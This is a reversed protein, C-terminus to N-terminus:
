YKEVCAGIAGEALKDLQEADAKSGPQFDGIFKTLARVHFESASRYWVEKSRRWEDIMLYLSMRFCNAAFNAYAARYAPARPMQDVYRGGVRIALFDWEPKQRNAQGGWAGPVRNVVLQKRALWYVNHIPYPGDNGLSLALWDGRASMMNRSTRELGQDFLWGLWFWSAQLDHMQQKFTPGGSKKLLMDADLGFAKANIDQFTRATEGVEWMPNPVLPVPFSVFAIPGKRVAEGFSAQRYAHQLLLLSRYKEGAVTVVGTSNAPKTLVSFGDYLKWLNADSPDVLYADQLAYWAAENEPPVHRAVDPLWHALSAHESGHFSDESFRNFPIGIPLQWPNLAMMSDAARKADALSGIKGKALLPLKVELERGFALDREAPTNGPLVTGGPQFPRDRLPDLLKAIGFKERVAHILAVIKEADADALHPKARRRLTADDFNYIALELGDPGHCQACAANDLRGRTRWAALGDRYADGQTGRAGGRPAEGIGSVTAAVLCGTM